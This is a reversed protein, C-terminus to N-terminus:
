QEHLFLLQMYLNTEDSFSASPRSPARLLGLRPDSRGLLESAQLLGTAESFPVTLRRPPALATQPPNLAATDLFFKVCLHVHDM